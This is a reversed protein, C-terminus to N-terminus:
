PTRALTYVDVRRVPSHRLAAACADTTAGTTFVDDIVLVVADEFDAAHRSRFAFAHELNDQRDFQGLRAQRQTARVRVVADVLPIELSRAVPRALLEAQNFGRSWFRTWHLPVPVIHTYSVGPLLAPLAQAMRRGLLAGLARRRRYKLARIAAAVHDEYLYLSRARDFSRTGGACNSCITTEADGPGPAETERPPSGGDGGDELDGRPQGCVPCGVDVQMWGSACTDCLVRDHSMSAMEDCLQCRAPLALDLVINAVERFGDM